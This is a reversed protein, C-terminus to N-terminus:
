EGPDGLMPPPAPDEPEGGADERVPELFDAPEEGLVDRAPELFEDHEEGFCDQNADHISVAARLAEEDFDEGDETASLDEAGRVHGLTDEFTVRAAECDALGSDAGVLGCGALAVALLPLAVLGRDTSRM